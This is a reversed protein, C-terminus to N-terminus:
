PTHTRTPFGYGGPFWGHQDHDRAVPAPKRHHSPHAPRDVVELHLDPPVGRHLWATWTAPSGGLILMLARRGLAPMDVIDAMGTDDTDSPRALGDPHTHWMGTFGVRYGSDALYQDVLQQTGITGHQFYRSSLRSDPSPAAAADVALTHTAEDLAGLLMGGTEIARGRVRDGRRTETRMQALARQSIRIEYRGTSDTTTLDNPWHLPQSPLADPQQDLTAALATMAPGSPDALQELIRTLLISALATVESASGTFTPASCGPEPFFRETRPPDPFLDTTIPKWGPPPTTATDVALRRLVDHPAGTAGTRSLTAIGHRADHGILVAATAPWAARHAIRASEMAARVGADATADIILDYGLLQTPQTLTGSIVNVTDSTVTLDRRIRSLRAALVTAKGRGIDADDYPQRVLVGPGIAANDVLHLAAVGARACQEAIPAGLAGCGLVLVRRGALWAAPSGTDRRRTVEPRDEYVRMWQTHAIALWRDTAARIEATLEVHAPDVRRLLDAWSGTLHDLHWATVHPLPRGPEIRRAPTILLLIQPVASDSDSDVTNGLATNLTGGLAITHLLQDRDVGRATLAALLGAVDDPYEMDLTRDLLVAPAFFRTGEPPDPLDATLLELAQPGTCWGVLDTRDGRHICHAWRTSTVVAIAPNWPVDDGLDAHVVLHGHRWSSYAVPPHLPQGVPDLTATAAARLWAMLREILGRIGDAPNWEVSPAAYLCLQRGWQVHPTGAWRRHPAVVHPATFPFSPEILLLFRERDRIHIGDGSTPIGATDLSIQALVGDATQQMSLLQVAGDSAAVLAHLQQEAAGTM